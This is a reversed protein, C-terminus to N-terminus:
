AAVRHARGDRTKRALEGRGSATQLLEVHSEGYLARGAKDAVMVATSYHGARLTWGNKLL